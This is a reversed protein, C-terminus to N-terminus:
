RTRVFLKDHAPSKHPFERHLEFGYRRFLALLADRTFFQLHEPPSIDAWLRIDEPVGPHSLDPASVYVFTGLKSMRSIAAMVESTGALHEFVESSFIFDFALGRGSFAELSECYFTSKPFSKRAYAISNASLDVGSAIAGLRSFAHVMFGGGCGIELVNKKYVYRVFRLSRWFARRSRSKAKPYFDAHASRYNVGYYSQIEEETPYPDVFLFGCNKCQSLLYDNKSFAYHAL